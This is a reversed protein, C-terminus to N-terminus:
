SRPKNGAPNESPQLQSKVCDAFSKAGICEVPLESHLVVTTSVSLPQHTAADRVTLRVTKPLQPEQRWAERWIRNAGAYSISLSYPARLLVVPDTFTPPHQFNNRAPEPAFPARMRVITPGQASNVEAIRLLELGTKANPGLTTRVFTVARNTGDFLPRSSNGGSSLFQASAIDAVLRELGLAV